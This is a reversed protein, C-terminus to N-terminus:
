INRGKKDIDAQRCDLLAIHGSQRFAKDRRRFEEMEKEHLAWAIFKEFLYNVTQESPHIMDEAYFRYDRLEDLVIEYAPFYDCRPSDSKGVAQAQGTGGIVGMAEDLGLLLSSKSLQNGHAGDKFHRIPSVTFIFEKDPHSLVINRVIEATKGSPLFERRFEKADRKLCNSVIFGGADGVYRYCWSTGLTLLVKNCSKWFASARDLSANAAALFEKPSDKAALTHHSFSCWKTSGSGMQVCDRETFHEGSDLRAICGAVSAPNYMTGFPNLCIKFGRELLKKGINDAFCSGLSMIRDGFSLAVCSKPFEVPTTLKM